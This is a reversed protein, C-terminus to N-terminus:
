SGAQQAKVRHLLWDDGTNILAYRVDSNRGHLTFVTTRENADHQEWWGTDAISKDADTYTLHEIEHDPVPVALRDHASDPPLGRPLAWSRLVGDVELRLDFHHRPKHHEHLVFAPQGALESRQRSSESAVPSPIEVTCNLACGIVGGFAGFAVANVCLL